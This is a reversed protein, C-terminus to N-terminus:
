LPVPRPEALPQSVTVTVCPYQAGARRTIRMTRPPEALGYPQREGGAPGGGTMAAGPARPRAWLAPGSSGAGRPAPPPTVAPPGDQDARAVPEPRGTHARRGWTSPAPKKATDRRGM